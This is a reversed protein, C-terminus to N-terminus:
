KHPRMQICHFTRTKEKRLSLYRGDGNANMITILCCYISGWVHIYSVCYSVPICAGGSGLLGIHTSTTLESASSGRGRNRMGILHIQMMSQEFIILVGCQLSDHCKGVNNGADNNLEEREKKGGKQIGNANRNRSPHQETQEGLVTHHSKIFSSYVSRNFPHLCLIRLEPYLRIDQTYDNDL